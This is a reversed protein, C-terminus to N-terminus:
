DQNFHLARNLRSSILHFKAMVRIKLQDIFANRDIFDVVKIGIIYLGVWFCIIGFVQTVYDTFPIKRKIEVITTYKPYIIEINHMACYNVKVNAKLKM